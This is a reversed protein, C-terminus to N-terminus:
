VIPARRIYPLLRKSRSAPQSAPQKTLWSRQDRSRKRRNGAAAWDSRTTTTTRAVIVRKRHQRIEGVPHLPRSLRASGLRVSRCSRACRADWLADCRTDRTGNAVGHRQESIETEKKKKGRERRGRARTKRCCVRGEPGQVRAFVRSWARLEKDAPSRYHSRPTSAQRLLYRPFHETPTTVRSSTEEYPFKFNRVERRHHNYYTTIYYYHRHKPPKM